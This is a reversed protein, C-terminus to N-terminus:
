NTNNLIKGIQLSAGVTCPFSVHIKINHITLNLRFIHSKM